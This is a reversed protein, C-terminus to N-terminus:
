LWLSGLLPIWFLCNRGLSLFMYRPPLHFCNSFFSWCINLLCVRMVEFTYINQLNKNLLNGKWDTGLHQSSFQVLEQWGGKWYLKKLVYKKLPFIVLPGEVSVLYSWLWSRHPLKALAPRISCARPPTQAVAGGEQSSFASFIWGRKLSSPGFESEFVEM